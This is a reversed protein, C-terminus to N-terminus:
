WDIGSQVVEILATPVARQLQFKMDLLTTQPSKPCENTWWKTSGKKFSRVYLLCSQHRKLYPQRYPSVTRRSVRTQPVYLIFVLETMQHKAVDIVYPRQLIWTNGSSCNVPLEDVWIYM